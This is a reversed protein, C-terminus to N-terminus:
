SPRACQRIALPACLRRKARASARARHLADLPFHGRRLLAGRRTRKPSVHFPLLAQRAVRKSFSRSDGKSRLISFSMASRSRAFVGPRDLVPSPRPASVSAAQPATGNKGGSKGGFEESCSPFSLIRKNTAISFRGFKRVCRSQLLCSPISPLLKPFRQEILVEHSPNRSLSFLNKPCQQEIPGQHFIVVGGGPRDSIGPPRGGGERLHPDIQQASRPM